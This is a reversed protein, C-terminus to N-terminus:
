DEPFLIREHDRAAHLIQLVEVQDDSVIYFIGYSAVVRRRVGTHEHRPVLAYMLARDPLEACAAELRTVLRLAVSPSEEALYELISTLDDRANSSLRLKRM